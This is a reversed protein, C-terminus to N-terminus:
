LIRLPPMVISSAPMTSRTTTTRTMENLTTGFWFALAISASFAFAHATVVLEFSYGTYQLHRLYSATAVLLFFTATIVLAVPLIRLNRPFLRMLLIIMLIVSSVLLLLALITLIATSTACADKCNWLGRGYKSWKPTTLGILTFLAAVATVITILVLIMSETLKM